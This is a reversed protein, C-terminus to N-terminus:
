SYHLICVISSMVYATMPQAPFNIPGLCIFNIDALSIQGM